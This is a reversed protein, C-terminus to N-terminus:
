EGEYAEPLPMWATVDKDDYVCYENNLWRNKGHVYEISAIDVDKGYISILVCEGLDPLRESVQIWRDVKPQEDILMEFEVSIFFKHKDLKHLAEILKNEDIM